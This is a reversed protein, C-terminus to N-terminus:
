KDKFKFLVSEFHNVKGNKVRVGESKLLAIKEEISRGSKEGKFGGISGDASVVRHCPVQPAYPNNKMATGVARYAKTQLSEALAKYTTVRGQPVKKLQAYVKEAFTTTMHTTYM